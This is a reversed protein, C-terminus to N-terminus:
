RLKLLPLGAEGFGDHYCMLIRDGLAQLDFLDCWWLQPFGEGHERQEVNCAQDVPEM